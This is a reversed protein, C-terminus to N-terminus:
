KAEKKAAAVRAAEREKRGAEYQKAFKTTLVRHVYV